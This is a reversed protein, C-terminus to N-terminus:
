APVVLLMARLAFDGAAIWAAEWRRASYSQCSWLTGVSWAGKECAEFRAALVHLM